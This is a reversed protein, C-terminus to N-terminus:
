NLQITFSYNLSCRLEGRYDTIQLGTVTEYSLVKTATNCHAAISFFASTVGPPRDPIAARASLTKTAPL